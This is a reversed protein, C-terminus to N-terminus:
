TMGSVALTAEKTPRASTDTGTSSAAQEGVKAEDLAALLQTAIDAPTAAGREGSRDSKEGSGEKKNSAPASKGSGPRNESGNEGYCGALFSVPLVLPLVIAWRRLSSRSM